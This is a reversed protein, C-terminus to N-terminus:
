DRDEWRAMESGAWYGPSCFGTCPGNVSIFFSPAGLQSLVSGLLMGTGM